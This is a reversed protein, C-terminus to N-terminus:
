RTERMQTALYWENGFPDRVSGTRDGYDQNAPEAISAAGAGLARHYSADVDPVYLYFMTPMPQYPGNAEGMEITSDGIRLTAHHIVGDPSAYTAVEGAGFARTMFRILPEARLPHLYVNVSHLGEPIHHPGKVTEIYLYNGQADKV